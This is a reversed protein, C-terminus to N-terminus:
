RGALIVGAFIIVVPLALGVISMINAFPVPENAKKLMIRVCIFCVISAIIGVFIFLAAVLTLSSEFWHYPDIKYGIAAIAEMIGASGILIFPILSVITTKAKAHKM